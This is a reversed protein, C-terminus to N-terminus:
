DERTIGLLHYNLFGRPIKLYFDFLANGILARNSLNYENKYKESLFTILDGNRINITGKLYLLSEKLIEELREENIDLYKQHLYNLSEEQIKYYKKLPETYLLEYYSTDILDLIYEIDEYELDATTLDIDFFVILDKHLPRTIITVDTIISNDEFSTVEVGVRSILVGQISNSSSLETDISSYYFLNWSASWTTIDQVSIERTPFERNIIEQIKDGVEKYEYITNILEEKLLNELDKFTM